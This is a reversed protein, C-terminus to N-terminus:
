LVKDIKDLFRYRAAESIHAFGIDAEGELDSITRAVKLIRSCARASLGDRTILKELFDM